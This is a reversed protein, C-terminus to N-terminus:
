RNSVLVRNQWATHPGENVCRVEGREVLYDVCAMMEWSNAIPGSAEKMARGATVAGHLELARLVFDRVRMVADLGADTFIVKRETTYDYVM